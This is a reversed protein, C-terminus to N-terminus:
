DELEAQVGAVERVFPSQGTAGAVASAATNAAERSPYDGQVIVYQDRGDRVRRYVEFAEPSTQGGIWARARERDSLVLVQLVFRSPDRAQLGGDQGAPAPPATAASPAEAVDAPADPVDGVVDPKERVDGDDPQPDVGATSEGAAPGTVADPEPVALWGRDPPMREGFPLAEAGGEEVADRATDAASDVVVDTGVDAVDEIVQEAAATADAVDGASPEATRLHSAPLEVQVPGVPDPRLALALGALVLLGVAGGALWRTPVRPWRRARELLIRRAVRNAGRPLGGSELHIRQYDQETFPSPGDLGARALRFQLYGRMENLSYPELRVPHAIPELRASGVAQELVRRLGDGGFLLVRANGSAASLEALAVLEELADSELEDADDVLVACLTRAAGLDTIQRHLRERVVERGEDADVALGMARAVAQLLNRASLFVGATIRVSRVDDPLRRLLAHYFTSRGVGSPGSVLVLPRGLGWLDTLADLLRERGGRAFFDVHLDSEPFPDHQLGLASLREADRIRDDSRGPESM